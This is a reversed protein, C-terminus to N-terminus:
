AGVGMRELKVGLEVPGRAGLKRMLDHRYLEVTRLAKGMKRATAQNTEGRMLCRALTVERETLQM